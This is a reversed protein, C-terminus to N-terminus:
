FLTLIKRATDAAEDDSDIFNDIVSILEPKLYLIKDCIKKGKIDRYVDSIMWYFHVVLVVMRSEDDLKIIDENKMSFVAETEPDDDTFDSLCRFNNKDVGFEKVMKYEVRVDEIINGIDCILVMDKDNENRQLLFSNDVWMAHGAEHDIAGKAARLENETFVNNLFRIPIHIIKKGDHYQPREWQSGDPNEGFIYEVGLKKGINNAYELLGHPNLKSTDLIFLDQPIEKNNPILM